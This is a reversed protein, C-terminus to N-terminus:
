LQLFMPSNCLPCCDKDTRFGCKPCAQEQPPQAPNREGCMRCHTFDPGNEATCKPCTWKATQEPMAIERPRFNRPCSPREWQQGM